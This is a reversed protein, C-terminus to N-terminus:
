WFVCWFPLRFLVISCLQMSIRFPVQNIFCLLISRFTEPRVLKKLHWCYFLKAKKKLIYDGKIAICVSVSVNVEGYIASYMRATNEMQRPKQIDPQFTKSGGEYTRIFLVCMGM